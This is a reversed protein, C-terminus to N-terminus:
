HVVHPTYRRLGDIPVGAAKCAKEVEGHLLDGVICVSRGERLQDVTWGVIRAMHGYQRGQQLIQPQAPGQHPQLAM